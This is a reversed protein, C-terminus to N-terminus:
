RIKFLFYNHQQNNLGNLHMSKYSYMKDLIAYLCEKGILLRLFKEFLLTDPFFVSRKSNSLFMM